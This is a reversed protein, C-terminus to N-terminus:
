KGGASLTRAQNIRETIAQTLEPNNSSKGLLKEWHAIAQKYNKAEFEASGALELARPNEPAIRLAQKVLEAPQGELKRGNAMAMAFAYEILIDADQPKLASAKSYADTAERYKELNIYSRGLMAWGDADNPNQEMRKALAAVNAEIAPQPMPASADVPKRPEMAHIDGVKLYIAIAMVPLALALAYATNRNSRVLLVFGGLALLLIGVTPQAQAFRSSGLLPILLSVLGLGILGYGTRTILKPGVPKAKPEEPLSVDDLLRREIEDRDRAHQEPSIIGHSLDADLERLQDRYIEVNAEKKSHEDVPASKQLLTPLVFALAIAIMVACILWFLIM